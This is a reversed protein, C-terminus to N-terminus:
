EDEDEEEVIKFEEPCCGWDMQFNECADIWALEKDCGMGALTINFHYTKTAM